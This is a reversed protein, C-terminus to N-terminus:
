HQEVQAENESLFGLNKGAGACGAITGLSFSGAYWIPNLYRPRGQLEAIRASCWALHDVEEGAARSLVNKVAPDRCFMSQGRYLAQACVEGVHNVRMLAAAKRRDEPSLPEADPDNRGAPNPRQAHAAGNLVHLARGAEALIRDPFGMRRSFASKSVM